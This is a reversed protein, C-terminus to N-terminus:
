RREKHRAVEESMLRTEHRVVDAMEMLMWPRLEDGEKGDTLYFAREEWTWNYAADDGRWGVMRCRVAFLANDHYFPGCLEDVLRCDDVGQRECEALVEKVWAAHPLLKRCCAQTLLEDASVDGLGTLLSFGLLVSTM